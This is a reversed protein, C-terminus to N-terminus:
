RRGGTAKEKTTTPRRMSNKGGRETARERTGVIHRREISGQKTTENWQQNDHLFM